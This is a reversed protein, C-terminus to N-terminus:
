FRIMPAEGEHFCSGGFGKVCLMKVNANKLSLYETCLVM